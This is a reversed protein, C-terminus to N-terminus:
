FPSLKTLVALLVGTAVSILGMKLSLRGAEHNAAHDSRRRLVFVALEVLVIVVYSYALLDWLEKTATPPRYSDSVVKVGLFFSFATPVLVCVASIRDLHWIRSALLFGLLPIVTYTTAFVAFYFFLGM